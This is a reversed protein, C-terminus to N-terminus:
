KGGLVFGYRAFGGQRTIYSIYGKMTKNKGLMAKPIVAMGDKFPIETPVISDIELYVKPKFIKGYTSPVVAYSNDRTQIVVPVITDTVAMLNSKVNWYVSLVYSELSSIDAKANDARLDDMMKKVTRSLFRTDDDCLDNVAKEFKQKVDNLTSENIDSSLIDKMEKNFMKIKDFPAKLGPNQMVDKEINELQMKVITQQIASEDANSKAKKDSCSAMMALIMLPLLINKM